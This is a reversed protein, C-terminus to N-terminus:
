PQTPVAPVRSEGELWDLEIGVIDILQRLEASWGEYGASLLEDHAACLYGAVGALAQTKTEAPM